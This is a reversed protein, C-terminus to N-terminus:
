VTFVFFLLSRPSSYISEAWTLSQTLRGTGRQLLSLSRSGVSNSPFETLTQKRNVPAKADGCLESTQSTEQSQSDGVKFMLSWGQLPFSLCACTQRQSWQSYGEPHNRWTPSFGSNQPSLVEQQGVPLAMPISQTPFALMPDTSSLTAELFNGEESMM